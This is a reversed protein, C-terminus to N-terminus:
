ILGRQALLGEFARRDEESQFAERTLYIFQTISTYLLYYQSRSRAEKVRSWNLTTVGGDQLHTSIFSEDIQYSRARMVAQNEPSYAFRWYFSLIYILFVGMIAAGFIGIYRIRDIPLSALYAQLGFALPYVYLLWKRREFHRVLSIRFLRAPTLSIPRTQLTM